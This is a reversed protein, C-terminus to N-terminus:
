QIQLIEEFNRRVGDGRVFRFILLYGGDVSRVSSTADEIPKRKYLYFQITERIAYCFDGQKNLVRIHWQEGLMPVLTSYTKITYMSQGRIKRLFKGAQQLGGAFLFKDFPLEIRVNVDSRSQSSLSAKIQYALENHLHFPHYSEPQSPPVIESEDRWEDHEEGYGNYHIKVQDGSTEVITIPYLKDDDEQIRRRRPITVGKEIAHYDKRQTTRLNYTAM